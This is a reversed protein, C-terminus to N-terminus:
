KQKRSKRKKTKKPRKKYTRKRKGGKQKLEAEYIIKRIKIIRDNKDSGNYYDCAQKYAQEGLYIDTLSCLLEVTKIDGRMSAYQLLPGHYTALQVTLEIGPQTVLIQVCEFKYYEYAISLPTKGTSSEKNIDIRPLSCLLEVIDVNGNFSALYLATQKFLRDGKNIEIGPQAALLKVCEINGRLSAIMLPTLNRNDGFYDNLVPHAFWPEVLELLEDANGEKAAAYIAEGVAKRENNALIGWSSKLEKTRNAAIQAETYSKRYKSLPDNVGSKSGSFFNSQGTELQFTSKHQVSSQSNLNTSKGSFKNSNQLTPSLLPNPYM